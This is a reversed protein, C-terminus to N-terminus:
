FYNENLKLIRKGQFLAACIRIMWLFFLAFLICKSANDEGYCRFLYRNHYLECNWKIKRRSNGGYVQM